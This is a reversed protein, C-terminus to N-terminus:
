YEAELDVQRDMPEGALFQRVNEVTAELMRDRIAPINAAVNATGLVNPLRHVGLRSPVNYHYGVPMSLSYDWWVDAAFGAIGGNVLAAHLPAEKVVMGRSVNVLFASGKMRGLEERGILGKTARTLPVALVVFDSRGLVEHLEDISRVEDVHDIRGAPRKRIGIVTTEFAKCRKAIETGIGGMGVITVTKGQLSVSETAAWEVWDTRKVAADHEVLRKALALMLAVAHEAVPVANVGRANCVTVGRERLLDFDLLDVGAHPQSILRLRPAAEIAESPIHWGIMVEADPALGVVDEPDAELPGFDPSRGVTLFECDDPLGARIRPLGNPADQWALLIKTM